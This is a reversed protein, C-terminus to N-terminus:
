RPEPKSREHRWLVLVLGGLALVTAVGGLRVSSLVISSYKGEKPDYHFCFLLLQDVVTGIRGHSAEVLAYRLDKPSYEIGYLVRAIRGDPTAVFVGAAHAYQRFEEDYEYHFGVADALRRTAAADGTLFRWGSEAGPRAYREIYYGKKGAAAAPSDSPDFSVTLVRYEDGANWSLANMAKFLGNLVLPCLMPCRFYAFSLVVPKGAAFFDGLRVARGSEDRLEVDLPLPQDLRQEIGARRLGAPRRDPETAAIGRPALALLSFLLTAACRM